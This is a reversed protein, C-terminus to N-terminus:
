GNLIDLARQRIADAWKRAAEGATHGTIQGSEKAIGVLLQAAQEASARLKESLAPLEKAKNLVAKIQENEDKERDEIAQRGAKTILYQAGGNVHQRCLLGKDALAYIPKEWRGIPLMYEGKAAIMLVTFEDDTISM